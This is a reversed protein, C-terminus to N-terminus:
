QALISKLTIEGSALKGPIAELQSKIEDSVEGYWKTLRVAGDKVGVLTFEPKFTGDQVRKAMASVMMTGDDIVSIPINDPALSNQDAGCGIALVGRDKVAEIVGLSAKDADACLVDAGQEIMSFASEKAKALDDFDGTFVTLVKIDPKIYKAGAKFGEMADIIPPIEMGGVYGITGSKTLLAAASGMLFGQQANDTSVSALNPEQSINSSTVVFCTDPFHPAVAKAGENFEFGHGIILNYGQEAYGRFFGEIDAAGVKETYAVDAELEEKAKMLGNYAMTNWGMDTIEGPLLLAVKLKESPEETGEAADPEAAPETKKSCGPVMISLLLFAVFAWTLASKKWGFGRFMASRM